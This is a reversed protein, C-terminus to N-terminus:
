SPEPPPAASEATTANAADAPQFWVNLQKAVNSGAKKLLQDALGGDRPWPVDHIPGMWGGQGVLAYGAEELVRLGARSDRVESPTRASVEMFVNRVRGSRLLRRAGALVRHEQGEVDIKLIAIPTQSTGSNSNRTSHTSGGEEEEEEQKPIWGREVALSDLTVLRKLTYSANERRAAAEDPFFRSM